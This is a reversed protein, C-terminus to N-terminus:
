REHSSRSFRSASDLACGYPHLLTDDAVRTFDRYGSYPETMYVPDEVTYDVRLTTGGDRTSYREIIKKEASSPIDSGNGLPGAAIGLGWRSPQYDSSEIVLEDGEIRGSVKGFLGSPEAQRPESNLSVTRTVEYVEHYLIAEDDEIQVDYLYNPAHLVPPINVPECTNAPSRESDYIQSAERAAATLPLPSEGDARLEAGRGRGQWRGVLLEIGSRGQVPTEDLQSGGGLVRGDATVFISGNVLPNSPDRNPRATVSVIDGPKFTDRDFGRRSMSPVSAGEVVVDQFSGDDREVELMLFVHPSRFQWETVAGTIEITRSTDYHVVVSHHAYGSGAILMLLVVRCMAIRTNM